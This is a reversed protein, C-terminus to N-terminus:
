ASLQHVIANGDLWVNERCIRENRFEFVHLIRFRVRRGNGQIGLFSGTVTATMMQDLVTFDDGQLVHTPVEEETRINATLNTYFARAADIGHLPGGPYGVVDHVIDDTYPAVAGDVNGAGEAKVHARILDRMQQRTTTGM